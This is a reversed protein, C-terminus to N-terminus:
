GATDLTDCRHRFGPQELFWFNEGGTIDRAGCFAGDWRIPQETDAM